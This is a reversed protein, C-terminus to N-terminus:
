PLQEDKRRYRGLTRAAEACHYELLEASQHWRSCHVAAMFHADADVDPPPGLRELASRLDVTATIGFLRLATAAVAETLLRIGASTLHCYDLFMRRDPLEGGLRERMLRPLDVVTVGHKEASRRFANQIVTSCGPSSKFPLARCADRAEEFLRRAEEVEGDHLRCRALIALGVPSTAEDLEVLDSALRAAQSFQGGGLAAQAQRALDFWRVNRDGQLIPVLLLLDERWDFLNTEPVVVILHAGAKAATKALVDLARETRGARWTEICDIYGRYGRNVLGEALRASTAGDYSTSSCWNNGAFLVFVDPKLRTSQEALGLIGTPDINSRALDVVDIDRTGPVSRLLTQLVVAPAFDPDYFYGRAASEGLFVIRRGRSRAPIEEKDAWLRWESRHIELRRYATDNKGRVWIGIRDVDPFQHEDAKPSAAAPAPMQQALEGYLAHVQARDNACMARAIRAAIPRLAKPPLNSM